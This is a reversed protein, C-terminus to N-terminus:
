RTKTFTVIVLNKACDDFTDFYIQESLPQGQNDLLQVWLQKTSAIPRDALKEFEFGSTGYAPNSGSIVSPADVDKGDLSGGLTINQLLIAKNNADVVTGGVGMWNCAWDLHMTTGAQYSIVASAPMPTSTITITPTIVLKVPTWTPAKTRTPLPSVTQTPTWTPPKPIFTATPTPTQFLTPLAEPPFPNHVSYPNTFITFFFYALYCTGLLILITLIDWIFSKRRGKKEPKMEFTDM